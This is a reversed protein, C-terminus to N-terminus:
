KQNIELHSGKKSLNPAAVSIEKIGASPTVGRGPQEIEERV